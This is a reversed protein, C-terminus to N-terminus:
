PTLLAYAICTVSPQVLPHLMYYPSPSPLVYTIHFLSPSPRCLSTICTDLLYSLFFRLMVGKSSQQIMSKVELTLQRLSSPIKACEKLHTKLSNKKSSNGEGNADNHKRSLQHPTFVFPLLVLYDHHSQYLDLSHLIDLLLHLIPLPTILGQFSKNVLTDEISCGTM